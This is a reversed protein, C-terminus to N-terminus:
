HLMYSISTHYIGSTGNNFNGFGQTGYVFMAGNSLISMVSVQSVGANQIFIPLNEGSEPRFDVPLFETITAFTAVSSIATALNFHISVLPGVRRAFYQLPLPAAYIGTITANISDYSATFIDDPEPCPRPCTQTGSSKFICAIGIGIGILGLGSVLSSCDDNNECVITTSCKKKKHKSKRKSSKLTHSCSSM